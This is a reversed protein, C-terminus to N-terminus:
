PKLKSFMRYRTVAIHLTSKAVHYRELLEAQGIGAMVDRRVWDRPLLLCQAFLSAEREYDIGMDAEDLPFDTASPEGIGDCAGHGLVAHGIEHALPFRELQASLGAALRIEGTAESWLARVGTPLTVGRRVPVAHVRAVAEPDVPPVKQGARERARLAEQEVWKARDM